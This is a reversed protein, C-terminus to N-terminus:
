PRRGATGAAYRARDRGFDSSLGNIQRNMKLFVTCVTRVFMHFYLADRYRRDRWFGCRSRVTQLKRLWILTMSRYVCRSLCHSPESM